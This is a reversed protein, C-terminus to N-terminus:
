DRAPPAGARGARMALVIGVAIFAAGVLHFGLIPEGLILFGLAGVVVPLMHIALGTRTPGILAVCRNWCLYAVLSAFVAVYGVAALAHPALPVSRGAATEWLMLPLLVVMGVIMTTIMLVGPSMEPPKFRLLSSYIAWNVVAVLVWLDGPAIRFQVLTAPDGRAVIWIVGLFSVGIGLWQGLRVRERVILMAAIPIALPMASNILSVNVAPTTQMALYVLSNYGAVGFAGAGVLLKWHKRVLARQRILAPGAFPVLIAVALTWRWFALGFPPLTENLGRAVLFNGAWCLPPVVILVYPASWLWRGLRGLPGAPLSPATPPFM